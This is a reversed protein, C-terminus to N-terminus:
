DHLHIRVWGVRARRVVFITKVPDRSIQRNARHARRTVPHRVGEPDNDGSEKQDAGQNAQSSGMAGVVESM